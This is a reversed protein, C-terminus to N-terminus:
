KMAKKWISSSNAERFKKPEQDSAVASLFSSYSYNVNNYTLYEEIPYFIVHYIFLDKMREPAQTEKVSRRPAVPPALSEEVVEGSPSHTIEAAVPATVESLATPLPVM